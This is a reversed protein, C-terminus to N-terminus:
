VGGALKLGLYHKTKTKTKKKTVISSLFHTHIFQTGTTRRHCRHCFEMQDTLKKGM